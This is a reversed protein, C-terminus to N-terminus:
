QSRGSIRRNGNMARPDAIIVPRTFTTARDVPTQPKRSPSTQQAANPVLGDFVKGRDSHRGPM